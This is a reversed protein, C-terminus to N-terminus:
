TSSVVSHLGALVPDLIWNLFAEMTRISTIIASHFYPRTAPMFILAMIIFMGYRELGVYSARLNRPLIWAMVRSGDLPPIPLMNFAALLLNFLVAMELISVMMQDETYLSFEVCVRLFFHFFIALLLNSLPGALAVLMMDRLPKRLRRIDV